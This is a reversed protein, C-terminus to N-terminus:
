KDNPRDRVGAEIASVQSSTCLVSLLARHGATPQQLAVDVRIVNPCDTLNPPLQALQPCLMWDHQKGWCLISIMVRGVFWVAWPVTWHRSFYTQKLDKQNDSGTGLSLRQGNSWVSASAFQKLHAKRVDALEKADRWLCVFFHVALAMLTISSLSGEKGRSKIWGLLEM